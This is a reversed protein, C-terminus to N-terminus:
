RNSAACERHQMRSIAVVYIFTRVFDGCSVAYPDVTKSVDSIVQMQEYFGMGARRKLSKQTLKRAHDGRQNGARNLTRGSLKPISEGVRADHSPPTIESIDFLVEDFVNKLRRSQKRSFCLREAESHNREQSPARRFPALARLYAEEATKKVLMGLADVYPSSRSLRASPDTHVPSSEPLVMLAEPLLM